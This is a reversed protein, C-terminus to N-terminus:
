ANPQEHKVNKRTIRKWALGYARIEHGLPGRKLNLYENALSPDRKIALKMRDRYLSPASVKDLLSNFSAEKVIKAMRLIEEDQARRKELAAQRADEAMKAIAEPDMTALRAEEVLEKRCDGCLGGEIDLDTGDTLDRKCEGCLGCTPLESLRYWSASRIRRHSFTRGQRIGDRRILVLGARMMSILVEKYQTSGFGKNKVKRSLDARSIEGGGHSAIAYTIAQRLLDDNGGAM